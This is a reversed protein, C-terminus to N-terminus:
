NGTLVSVRFSLEDDRDADCDYLARVRRMVFNRRNFYNGSRALLNRSISDRSVYNPERSRSSGSTM